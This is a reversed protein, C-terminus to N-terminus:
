PVQSKEIQESLTVLEGSAKAARDAAEERLSQERVSAFLGFAGFAYLPVAIM